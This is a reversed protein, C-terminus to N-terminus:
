DLSDALTSLTFGAMAQMGSANPHVPFAVDTPVLGEVWKIGPLQCADHGLSAAYSNVFLAGNSAAQEQLVATFQQQLGDLYPVDGRSIPVLPWCGETPPLIHPYGVFVVTANPARQAIGQLVAAIRPATTLIREAYRDTGTATAQRTCPAGLPDGASLQGCTLMMDTYGMDNGGISVTVLDTDPSLAAFQAPNSGLPVSQPATMNATTAGSCSADTFTRVQLAEAILAPYNHTSRACGLPDTRQIPIFPGAAFSDGLAVYNAYHGPLYGPHGPIHGTHAPIHTAHGPTHAYGAVPMGLMGLLALLTALIAVAIRRHRPM